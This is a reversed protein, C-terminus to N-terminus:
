SGDMSYLNWQELHGYLGHKQRVDYVNAVFDDIEFTCAAIYFTHASM